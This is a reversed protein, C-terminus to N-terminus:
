IFKGSNALIYEKCAQYDEEFITTEVNLSEVGFTEKIDDTLLFKEVLSNLHGSRYWEWLRELRKLDHCELAIRIKGELEEGPTSLHVLKVHHQGYQPSENVPFPFADSYLLEESKM